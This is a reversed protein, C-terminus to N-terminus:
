IGSKTIQAIGKAGDITLWLGGNAALGQVREFFEPGLGTISPIGQERAITCAHSLAGGEAFLLAAAFPFLDTTEPKAHRFVLIPFDSMDPPRFNKMKQVIFVRGTVQGGCVPLGQWTGAGDAARAAPAPPQREEALPENWFYAPGTLEGSERKPFLEFWAPSLQTRRKQIEQMQLITRRVRPPAKDPASLWSAFDQPTHKPLRLMVAQLALGLATSEVIKGDLTMPLPTGLTNEVYYAVRWQSKLLAPIRMLTGREVYSYGGDPTPAPQVAGCSVITTMFSWNIYPVDGVWRLLSGGGAPFGLRAAARNWVSGEDNMDYISDLKRREEATLPYPLSAEDSFRLWLIPTM